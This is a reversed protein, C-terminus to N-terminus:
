FTEKLNGLWLGISIEGTGLVHVHGVLKVRRLKMMQIINPSCYLDTLEVIYFYIPFLRRFCLEKTNRPCAGVILLVWLSAGPSFRGRGRIMDLMYLLLNYMVIYIHM